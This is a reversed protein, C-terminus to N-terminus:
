FSFTFTGFVNIWRDKTRFSAIPGFPDGETEGRYVRSEVGIRFHSDRDLAVSGGVLAYYGSRSRAACPPCDITFGAQGFPQRLRASYRM